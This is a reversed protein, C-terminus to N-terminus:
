CHRLCERTSEPTENIGTLRFVSIPRLTGLRAEVIGTFATVRSSWANLRANRANSVRKFILCRRRLRARVACLSRSCFRFGLKHRRNFIGSATFLIGCFSIGRSLRASVHEGGGGTFEGDGLASSDRQCALPGNNGRHRPFTALPLSKQNVREGVIIDDVLEAWLPGSCPDRDRPGVLICARGLPLKYNDRSLVRFRRRRRRGVLVGRSAMIPWPWTDQRCRLPGRKQRVAINAGTQTRWGIRGRM